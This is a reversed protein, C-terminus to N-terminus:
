HPRRTHGSHLLADAYARLAVALKHHSIRGEIRERVTEFPLLPGAEFRNIRAIHLGFRTEILEPLLGPRGFRDLAHWFEPVVDRRTIQGLNGGVAGSRCNSWERAAQAFGSDDAILAELRHQAFDRLAPRHADEVAAFLIHDVEVITGARFLAENRAYYDRCEAATPAEVPVEQELLADIIADEEEGAIGLAAARALLAARVERALFPAPEVM